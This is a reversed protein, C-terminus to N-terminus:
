HMYKSQDGERPYCNKDFQLRPSKPLLCLIGKGTSYQSLLRMVSMDFSINAEYSDVNRASAPLFIHKKGGSAPIISKISDQSRKWRQLKSSKSNKWCICSPLQLNFVGVRRILFSLSIQFYFCAWPSLSMFIANLKFVLRCSRPVDNVCTKKAVTHLHNAM